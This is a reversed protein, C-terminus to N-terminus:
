ATPSMSRSCCTAGRGGCSRPRRPGCGSSKRRRPLRRSTRGARSDYWIIAPHLPRDREDLTVFTQGQSSVALATVHRAGGQTVERVCDRAAAHVEEIPIEAQGPAPTRPMLPRSALGLLGGQRDFLGAKVSTGGLDLGLVSEPSSTM